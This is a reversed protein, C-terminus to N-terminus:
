TSSNSLLNLEDGIVEVIREASPRDLPEASWCEEIFNWNQDSFVPYRSRLPKV